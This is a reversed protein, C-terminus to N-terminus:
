YNWIGDNFWFGLMDWIGNELVWTRATVNVVFIQVTKFTAENRFIFYGQGIAETRSITIPYTGASGETYDIVAVSPGSILRWSNSSELTFTADPTDLDLIIRSPVVKIYGVPCTQVDYTITPNGTITGKRDYYFEVEYLSPDPNIQGELLAIAPKKGSVRTLNGDVDLPEGGPKSVKYAITAQKYGTNAM